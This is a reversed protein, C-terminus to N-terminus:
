DYISERGCAPNQGVRVAARRAKNKVGALRGAWGGAIKPIRVGGRLRLVGCVAASFVAGAVPSERKRRM